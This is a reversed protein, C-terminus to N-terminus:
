IEVIDWILPRGQLLKVVKKAASESSKAEINGIIKGPPLCGKGTTILNFMVDKKKAM